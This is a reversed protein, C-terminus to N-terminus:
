FRFWYPYRGHRLIEECGHGVQVNTREGVMAFLEHIKRIEDNVLVKGFGLQALEPADLESHILPLQRARCGIQQAPDKGAM